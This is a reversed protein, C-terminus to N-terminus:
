VIHYVIVTITIIIIVIVIAIIVIIITRYLKFVFRYILEIFFVSSIKV